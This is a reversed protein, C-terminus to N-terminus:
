GPLTLIPAPIAPKSVFRCGTQSRFYVIPLKQAETPFMHISLHWMFLIFMTNRSNAKRVPHAGAVTIGGIEGDAVSVGRGGVAVAVTIGVSVATGGVPVRMGVPVNVGM